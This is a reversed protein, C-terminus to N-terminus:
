RGKVRECPQAARHPPATGALRGVQGACSAAGPSTAPLLCLTLFAPEEKPTSKPSLWGKSFHSRFSLSAFVAPFDGGFRGPRNWPSRCESLVRLM